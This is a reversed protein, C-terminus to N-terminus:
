IKKKFSYVKTEDLAGLSGYLNSAEKSFGTITARKFGLEHLRKLCEQIVVKGFGRRRYDSHTCVREIEADGHWPCILAECGAVHDGAKNRIIIDTYGHYTPSNHTNGYYMLQKKLEEKSVTKGEFAINRLIRQKEYEPFRKMDVLEFGVELETTREYPLMLDFIRKYATFDHYFGYKKLVDIERNMYETEEIWLEDGRNGWHEIVWELIEEYLLFFGKATIIHFGGDGNESITVGVLHDLSDFFLQANIDWFGKTNRKNDYIGYYWDTYRQFSMGHEQNHREGLTILFDAIIKYDGGAKSFARTTYNM